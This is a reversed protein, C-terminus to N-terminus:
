LRFTLKQLSQFLLILLFFAVRVAYPDFDAHPAEGKLMRRILKSEEKTLEVEEDNYEDYIKRRHDWM